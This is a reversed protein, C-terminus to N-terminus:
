QRRRLARFLTDFSLTHNFLPAPYAENRLTQRQTLSNKTIRDEDSKTVVRLTEAKRRHKLWKEASLASQFPTAHVASTPETPSFM